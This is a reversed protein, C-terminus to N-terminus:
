PAAIESLFAVPNLLKLNPCKQRFEKGIMSYDSALSLLDNDRSVLHTAKAAIALDIYPEDQTARPYTFSHPVHRLLTARFSFQQLFLEIRQDKLGPLKTRVSPYQLVARLEGIVARSVFVDIEGRQLLALARGSPGGDNSIAQIVINCDFVVRPRIV